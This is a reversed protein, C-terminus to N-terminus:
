RQWEPGEKWVSSLASSKPCTLVKTLIISSTWQKRKSERGKKYLYQRGESFLRRRKDRAWRVVRIQKNTATSQIFLLLIVFLLLFTLSCLETSFEVPLETRKKEHLCGGEKRAYSYKQTRSFSHYFYYCHYNQRVDRQTAAIRSSWECWGNKRTAKLINKCHQRSSNGVWCWYVARVRLM